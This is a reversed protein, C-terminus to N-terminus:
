PNPKALAKGDGSCAHLRPRDDNVAVHARDGGSSMVRKSQPNTHVGKCHAVGDQVLRLVKDQADVAQAVEGDGDPLRVGRVAVERHTCVNKQPPLRSM